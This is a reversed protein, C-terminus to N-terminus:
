VNRGLATQFTTMAADFNAVQTADLYNGWSAGRFQEGPGPGQWPTGSRGVAWLTLDISSTGPTFTEARTVIQTAGRYGYTTTGNNTNIYFGDPLGTNTVTAYGGAGFAAYYTTNGYGNILAWDPSSSGWMYFTAANTPSSYYVSFHGDGSFDLARNLGYGQLTNPSIINIWSNTSSATAGSASHSWSGDTSQFTVNYATPDKLNFYHEVATSGVVPYLGNIESWISDAKLDLVLGNVADKETTTLSGGSAGIADFFAQADPDYGATAQKLFTFPTSFM